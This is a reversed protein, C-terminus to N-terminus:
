ANIKRLLEPALPNVAEGVGPSTEFATELTTEIM